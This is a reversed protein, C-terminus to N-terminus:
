PHPVSVPEMQRPQEPVEGTNEPLGDKKLWAYIFNHLPQVNEPGFKMYVATRYVTMFLEPRYFIVSEYVGTPNLPSHCINKDTVSFMCRCALPRKEYIGCENNDQLFVCRRDQINMHVYSEEDAGLIAQRQLRNFDIDLGKEKAFSLAAKAEPNTATVLIHCCNGCGKECSIPRDCTGKEEEVKLDIAEIVEKLVEGATNKHMHDITDFVFKAFETRTADDWKRVYNTVFGPSGFLPLYGSTPRKM